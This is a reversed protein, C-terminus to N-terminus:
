AMACLVGAPRRANALTGPGSAAMAKLAAAGGLVQQSGFASSDSRSIAKQAAAVEDFVRVFAESRSINLHRAAAPGAVTAVTGAMLAAVHAVVSAAQPPPCLHCLRIFAGSMSSMSLM